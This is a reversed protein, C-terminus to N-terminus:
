RFRRTLQLSEVAPNAPSEFLHDFADLARERAVSGAFIVGLGPDDVILTVDDRDPRWLLQVHLGDTARGDRRHGGQHAAFYSSTTAM